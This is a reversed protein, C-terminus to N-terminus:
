LYKDVTTETRKPGQNAQSLNQKVEKKGADRIQVALDRLKEKDENSMNSTKVIKPFESLFKEAKQISSGVGKKIGDVLDAIDNIGFRRLHKTIGESDTFNEKIEKRFNKFTKM